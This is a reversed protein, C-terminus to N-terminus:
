NVIQSPLLLTWTIRCTKPKPLFEKFILVNAYRSVKNYNIKDRPIAVMRIKRRNWSIQFNACQGYYRIVCIQTNNRMILVTEESVEYKMQLLCVKYWYLFISYWGHDHRIVMSVFGIGSFRIQTNLYRQKSRVLRKLVVCFASTQWIIWDFQNQTWMITWPILPQTFIFRMSMHIQGIYMHTIFDIVMFHGFICIDKAELFEIGYGFVHRMVKLGYTRRLLSRGKYIPWIWAKIKVCGRVGQVIIHACFWNSQIIQYVDAKLITNFRSSRHKLSYKLLFYVFIVWNVFGNYHFQTKM